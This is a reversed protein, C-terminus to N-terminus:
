PSDRLDEAIREAVKGADAQALFYFAAHELLREPSVQQREAEAVFRRWLDAAIVLELDHRQGGGDERRFDPYSHGVEGSDADTLFYAVTAVLRRNLDEEPGAGEPELLEVCSPSLSVAVSHAV